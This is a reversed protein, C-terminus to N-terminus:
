QNKYHVDIILGDRTNTKGVTNIYPYKTMKTFFFLSKFKAILEGDLNYVYVEGLKSKSESMKLQTGVFPSNEYKVIDRVKQKGVREKLAVFSNNIIAYPKLNTILSNKCKEFYKGYETMSEFKRYFSGDINYVYVEEKLRGM